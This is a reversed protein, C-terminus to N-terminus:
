ALIPLARTARPPLKQYHELCQTCIFGDKEEPEERALREIKELNLRAISAVLRRHGEYLSVENLDALVDTDPVGGRYGSLMCCATLRGRHDINLEQMQFQPCQYFRSQNYHDGALLIPMRFLEQLAAIEAEVQRREGPDLVLGAAVGHPTPQCHGFLLTDCGLRSGLVAMEHLEARNARTVVMNVHVPIGHVRCLLIAQMLRRFSGKRQRLTDHTEEAAGDISFTVHALHSRYSELQTFTKEAFHWGNTVFGFHHGHRVVLALLDAFQPHLTPEGGTFTVFNVNQYREAEALVKRVLDLPLFGKGGEERICHTCSFNCVSTLEFILKVGQRESM